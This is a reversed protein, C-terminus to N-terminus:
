ASYKESMCHELVVTSTPDRGVGIATSSLTTARRYYEFRIMRVLDTAAAFRGVHTMRRQNTTLAGPATLMAM